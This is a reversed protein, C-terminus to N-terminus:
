CAIVSIPTPEWRLVVELYPPSASLADRQWFFSGPSSAYSVDWRWAAPWHLSFFGIGDAAGPSERWLGHGKAPNDQQYTLHNQM